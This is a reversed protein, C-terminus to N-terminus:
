TLQPPIWTFNFVLEPALALLYTRGHSRFATNPLLCLALYAERTLRTWNPRRESRFFYQTGPQELYELPHPTTTM